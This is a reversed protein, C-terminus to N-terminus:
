KNKYKSEVYCLQLKFRDLAGCGHQYAAPTLSLKIGLIGPVPTWLRSVFCGQFTFLDIIPSATTHCAMLTPMFTRHIHSESLKKRIDLRGLFLKVPFFSVLRYLGM